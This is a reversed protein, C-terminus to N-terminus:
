VMETTTLLADYIPGLYKMRGVTQVITHAPNVVVAEGLMIGLPQWEQKVDPNINGTVNLDKDIADFIDKTMMTIDTNLKQAFITQTTSVFETTWKKQADAHDVTGAIYQDVLALADM